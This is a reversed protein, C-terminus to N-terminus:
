QEARKWTYGGEPQWVPAIPFEAVPFNGAPGAAEPDDELWEAVLCPGGTNMWHLVEAGGFTDVRHYPTGDDARELTWSECTCGNRPSVRCDASEPASCVPTLTVRGDRYDAKMTHDSVPQGKRM